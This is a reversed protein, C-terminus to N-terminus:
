ANTRADDDCIQINRVSDGGRFMANGTNIVAYGSSTNKEAFLANKYTFVSIFIFFLCLCCIIIKKM